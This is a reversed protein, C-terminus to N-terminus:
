FRWLYNKIKPWTKSSTIKSTTIVKMSVKSSTIGYTINSWFYSKRCTVKSSTILGEQRMGRDLTRHKEILFMTLSSKPFMWWYNNFSSTCCVCKIVSELVTIHDIKIQKLTFDIQSVSQESRGPRWCPWFICKKIIWWALSGSSPLFARYFKDGLKISGKAEQKLIIQWSVCLFFTVQCKEQWIMKKWFTKEYFIRWDTLILM